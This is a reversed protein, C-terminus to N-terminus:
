EVEKPLRDVAEMLAKQSSTRYHQVYVLRGEADLLYLRPYFYVNFRSAYQSKPDSVWAFRENAYSRAVQDVVSKPSAFVLVIQMNRHARQVVRYFSLSKLRCPSVPGAFLFLKFNGPQLSGAILQSSTPLPLQSGQAPDKRALLPFTIYARMLLLHKQVPTIVDWGLTVRFLPVAAAVLVGLLLLLGLLRAHRQCWRNEVMRYLPIPRRNRGNETGTRVM